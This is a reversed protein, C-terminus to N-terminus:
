GLEIAVYVRSYAEALRSAAVTTEAVVPSEIADLFCDVYEPLSSLYAVPEGYVSEPIESVCFFEPDAQMRHGDVFTTGLQIFEVVDTASASLSEDGVYSAIAQLNGEMRDLLANIASEQAYSWAVMDGVTVLEPQEFLEMFESVLTNWQLLLSGVAADATGQPILVGGPVEVRDNSVTTTPLGVTTPVPDSTEKVSCANLLLVSALLIAAIRM